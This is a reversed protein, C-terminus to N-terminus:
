RQCSWEVAEGLTQGGGVGMVVVRAPSVSPRGNREGVM